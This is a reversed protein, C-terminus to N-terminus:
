REGDADIGAVTPGKSGTWRPGAVFVRGRDVAVANWIMEGSEAVVILSPM